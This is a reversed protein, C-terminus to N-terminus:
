TTWRETPTNWATSRTPHIEFEDDVGTLVLLRLVPGAPCILVLRRNAERLSAQGHLLARLGSCDMFTTHTLDLWIETAGADGATELARDLHAATSIDVEGVVTLVARRGARQEDFVLLPTTPPNGSVRSFRM